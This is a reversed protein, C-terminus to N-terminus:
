KRLGKLKGDIWDGILWIALIILLPLWFLAVFVATGVRLWLAEDRGEVFVIVFLIASLALHIDQLWSM